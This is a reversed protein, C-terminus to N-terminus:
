IGRDVASYGHQEFWSALTLLQLLLKVHNEHGDLHRDVINILGDAHFMGSDLLASNKGLGQLRGVFAPDRRFLEAHNVWSGGTLMPDADRFRQMLGLRRLSARGLVCAIQWWFSHHAVVGTNADPLAMLDDGMLMMAQHAMRGSARWEPPMSLYLDFVEPDFAITRHRIVSEMAVFDSYAYHRGQTTLLFADWADYPNEVDAAHIATAMASIRRAALETRIEPRLISELASPKIGVRLSASVTEPSGDSIPRLRPLRTVSGAVRVMVCPLYYGRLTYDLGHGSLLVDHDHAIDPLRGFLNVPASFLGDSALTAADFAKEIGAPPNLYLHFPSQARNAVSRAVTIEFNEHTGVTVSAISRNASRAAALVWRSDLGGSLLLGHRTRDAVRRSVARKVGDALRVAGEQESFDPSRWSLRRTQTKSLKGGEITIITSGTLGSVDAYQTHEGVTRQFSLLEVLGQRSLRCPVRDDSLLAHMRSAVSLHDGSHWYFLSKTGLRDGALIVRGKPVDIIITAFSGNWYALRELKSERYAQGIMGAPDNVLGNDDFVEGDILVTIGDSGDSLSRESALRGHFAMGVALEHSLSLVHAEQGCLAMQQVMLEARKVAEEVGGVLCIGSM